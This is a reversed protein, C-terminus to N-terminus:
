AGIVSRGELRVNNEPFARGGRSTVPDIRIERPELDPGLEKRGVVRFHRIVRAAGLASVAVRQKLKAAHLHRMAPSVQQAGGIAGRHILGGTEGHPLRPDVQSIAAEQHLLHRVNVHQVGERGQRHRGVTSEIATKRTSVGGIFHSPQGGLM